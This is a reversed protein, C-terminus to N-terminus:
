QPHPEVHSQHLPRLRLKNNLSTSPIHLAEPYIPGIGGSQNLRLRSQTRQEMCACFATRWTHETVRKQLNGWAEGDKCAIKYVECKRRNAPTHDKIQVPSQRLTFSGWSKFVTKIYGWENLFSLLPGPIWQKCMGKIVQSELFDPYLRTIPRPILSIESTSHDTYVQEFRESLANAHADNTCWKPM